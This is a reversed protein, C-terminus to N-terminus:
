RLGWLDRESPILNRRFRYLITPIPSQGAVDFLRDLAEKVDSLAAGAFGDPTSERRADTRRGVGEM